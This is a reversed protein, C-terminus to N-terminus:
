TLGESEANATLFQVCCAAACFDWPGNEAKPIQSGRDTREVRLWGNFPSGGFMMESQEAVKGCHDCKRNETDGSAPSRLREANSKLIRIVRELAYQEGRWGDWTADQVYDKTPWTGRGRQIRSNVEDLESQVLGVILDLTGEVRAQTTETNM